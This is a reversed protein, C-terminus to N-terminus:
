NNLLSVKGNGSSDSSPKEVLLPQEQILNKKKGRQELRQTNSPQKKTSILVRGRLLVVFMVSHDESCSCFNYISRM